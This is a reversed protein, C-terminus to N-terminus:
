RSGGIGMKAFRRNLANKVSILQACLLTVVTSQGATIEIVTCLDRVCEVINRTRGIDSM